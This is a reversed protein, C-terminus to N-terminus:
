LGQIVGLLLTCSQTVGYRGFVTVSQTAYEKVPHPAGTYGVGSFTSIDIFHQCLVAATHAGYPAAVIQFSNCGNVLATRRM